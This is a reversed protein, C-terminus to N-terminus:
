YPTYTNFPDVPPTEGAVWTMRCLHCSVMGLLCCPSGSISSAARLDSPPHSLTIVFSCCSLSNWSSSKAFFIHALFLPWLLVSPSVYLTFSSFICCQSQVGGDESAFPSVSFALCVEALAVSSHFLPGSSSWASVVNCFSTCTFVLFLLFAPTNTSDQRAPQNSPCTMHRREDPELDLAVDEGDRETESCTSEAHRNRKSLISWFWMSCTNLKRKGCLLAGCGPIFIELASLFTQLNLAQRNRVSVLSWRHNFTWM